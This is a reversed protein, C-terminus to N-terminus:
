NLFPPSTPGALLKVLFYDLLEPRYFIAISFIFVLGYFAGWFHADHGINDNGRKAMYSSYWLYGIAMLVGPLPPFIFWQWPDFFVYVFVIASTAGSAGLARYYNNDNHKFYSPISAIAIASLYFLIYIVRGASLGFIQEFYIEVVEGFQYLVFMNIILHGWDAHIFGSTFFRYWEGRAQISTPHFLLQQKMSLNTFAQYSIIGTLAVLITTFNM